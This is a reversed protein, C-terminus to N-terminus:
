LGAMGPEPCTRRVRKEESDQEAGPKSKFELSAYPSWMGGSEVYEDESMPAEIAYGLSILCNRTDLAHNYLVRFQETTPHAGYSDGLYAKTCARLAEAGGTTGAPFQFGNGPLATVAFGADALCSTQYAYLKDDAQVQQAIWGPAVFAAPPTAAAADV